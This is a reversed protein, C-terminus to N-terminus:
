KWLNVNAGILKIFGFRGSIQYSSGLHNARWPNKTKSNRRSLSQTRVEELIELCASTEAKEQKERNGELCWCWLEKKGM